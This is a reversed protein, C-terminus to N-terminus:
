RDSKGDWWCPVAIFTEGRERLVERKVDDKQQIVDLPLQSEHSTIYHYADQFEFCLHLNPFWVDIELSSGTHPNKINASTRVNTKIDENPFLKQLVTELTGQHVIGDNLKALSRPMV